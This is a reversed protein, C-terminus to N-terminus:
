PRNAQGRMLPEWVARKNAVDLKGQNIEDVSQDCWKIRAAAPAKEVVALSSATQEKVMATLKIRQEATMTQALSRSRALAPMNRKGWDVAAANYRKFSTPLTQLCLRESQAVLDELGMAGMLAKALEPSLAPPPAATPAAAAAARKARYAEAARAAPSEAPAADKPPPPVALLEVKRADDTAPRDSFTVKGDPGVVKYIAQAMVAPAPLLLLISFLLRLPMTAM